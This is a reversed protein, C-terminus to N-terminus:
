VPDRVGAGGRRDLRPHRGARVVHAPERHRARRAGAARHARLGTTRGGVVLRRRGSLGLHRLGGTRRAGLDDRQPLEVRRPRPRPALRAPAAAHAQPVTEYAWDVESLWLEHVRGPDHIAPNEDRGGAELLLVRAGGDVLRRAVSPAPRVRRRRRRRGRQSRPGDDLACRAGALHRAPRASLIGNPDLRGQDDRRLAPLRPRRVLVARRSTWSTSTRATSATARAEGGRPRAAARRRLRPADRGREQHRLPGADRQHLQARQDPAAGGRLRPRAEQEVLGRM